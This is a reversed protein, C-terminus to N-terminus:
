SVFTVQGDLWCATWWQSLYNIITLEVWVQSNAICAVSLEPHPRPSQNGKGNKGHWLLLAHCQWLIIVKNKMRRLRHPLQHPHTFPLSSLFLIYYIFVTGGIQCRVLRCANMWCNQFWIKTRTHHSLPRLATEFHFLPLIIIDVSVISTSSFFERWISSAFWLWLHHNHSLLRHLFNKPHNSEIPPKKPSTATKFENTQTDISNKSM